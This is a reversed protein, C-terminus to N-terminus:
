VTRRWHSVREVAGVSISYEEYYDRLGASQAERHEPHCAWAEHSPGDAFTV